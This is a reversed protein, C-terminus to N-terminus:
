DAWQQLIYPMERDREYSRDLASRVMVFPTAQNENTYLPRKPTPNIFPPIIIMDDNLLSVECQNLTEM